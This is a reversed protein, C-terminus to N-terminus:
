PNTTVRSVVIKDLNPAPGSPNGFTLQNLGAQLPVSAALVGVQNTDGGTAAFALTTTPVGNVSLQAACNAACAYSIDARYLGGSPAAVRNFRLTNAEGNGIGTVYAGSSFNPNRPVYNATGSFTNYASEAEYTRPRNWDFEGAVKLMMSGHPPINTGTFGGNLSGLDQHAWLDRVEAPRGGVLGLDQWNVTINRATGSRNLLLVAFQGSTFSGLPKAYVATSDGVPRGVAGLPDQDVAIVEANTLTNLTAATMLPAYNPTGTTRVDTGIILPAGLICWMNFHSRGELDSVGKLGICLMDPDNWHGPAQAFWQAQDVDFERIISDWNGEGMKFTIDNDVRYSNAIRNGFQLRDVQPTSLSLVM